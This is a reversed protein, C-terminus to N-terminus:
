VDNLHHGNKGLTSYHGWPVWSVESRVTLSAGDTVSCPPTVHRADAGHRM